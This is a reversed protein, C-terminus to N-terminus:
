SLTGDNAMCAPPGKAAVYSPTIHQVYASRMTSTHEFKFHEQAKEPPYLAPRPRYSKDFPLFSDQQTSRTDFKSDSVAKQKPRFPERKQHNLYPVYMAKNTTLPQNQWPVPEYERIPKCSIRMGGGYLGQYADQSTSRTDFKAPSTWPHQVEPRIPKAPAARIAMTFSSAYTTQPGMGGPPPVYVAWPAETTRPPRCTM